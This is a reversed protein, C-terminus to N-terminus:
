SSSIHLTSGDIGFKVLSHNLSILGLWLCEPRIRRDLNIENDKMIYELINQKREIPNGMSM